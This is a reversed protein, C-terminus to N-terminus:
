VEFGITGQHKRLIEYILKLELELNEEKQISSVGFATEVMAMPRKLGTFIMLVEISEKGKEAKGPRSGEGKREEPTATRTLFGLTGGPPISPLSYQLLSHFVYRLPEDPIMTEPLDKELKKMVKIKKQDFVTEYRNLVEELIRHVTNTKSLPTNMKIYNMLGNLIVDIKDIDESVVKYFSERYEGDNFKEQLLQTFTKISVLPNKIRHVLETLFLISHLGQQERAPDEGNSVVPDKLDGQRLFALFSNRENEANFYLDKEMLDEGESFIASRLIVTELEKLNGPWWYSQLLSLVKESINRKKLTMRSAYDSLLHRSLAPIDKSRDRLPPLYISITNLQDFLDECFKGQAAKERLDESSSSIWRLNKVRRKEGDTRLFGEEVLEVLRSQDGSGLQGVEKLFLTAPIAGYRIERFLPSLHHLLTGEKVMKCNIKYFRHDKWESWQHITKAVWEKGVGQEGQILVPVGNQGAKQVLPVVQPPIIRAKLIEQYKMTRAPRDSKSIGEGPFARRIFPCISM